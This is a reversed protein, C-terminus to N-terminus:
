GQGRRRKQKVQYMDADARKLLSAISDETDPVYEALGVSVAIQFPRSASANHQAIHEQLRDRSAETDESTAELALVVFEDGGLRAISDTERFTATLIAAMDVLAQDGAAHGQQDNIEKMNDLDAFYLVARKGLRQAMHLQLEALLQFGRRNRLGTLEDTLSMERIAQEYHKRQTIDRVTSIIRAGEATELPSLSIEAPFESGDRRCGCFELGSDLDRRRPKQGYGAVLMEHRARQNKPMLIEIPQGALEAANYGFLQQARANSSQINGSLDTVVMADPASEFLSRFQRESRALRQVLPIVQTRLLVIGLMVIVLVILLTRQLKARVPRFIDEADLEMVMALGLADIPGYAALVRVGHEDESFDLGNQGFLARELLAPSRASVGHPSTKGPIQNQGSSSQSPICRSSGNTSVCLQMTTAAYTQKVESLMRQLVPLPYDVELQGIVRGDHEVPQRSRLLVQDQGWLLAIGAQTPLALTVEALTITGVRALVEGDADQISAAIAGSARQQTLMDLLPEYASRQTRAQQTLSALRPRRALEQSSRILAPLYTTIHAHRNDFDRQLGDRVWSQLQEQLFTFAVLGGSLGILIMLGGGLLAVRLDERQHFFAAVKQVRYVSMFFGIGLVVFAVGTHLAMRIEVHWGYLLEPRLRYGLLGTLGLMIVTFATILAPLARLGPGAHTLLLVTLGAFVHALATNPAMR